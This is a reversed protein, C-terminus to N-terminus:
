KKDHDKKGTKERPNAAFFKTLGENVIDQFIAFKSAYQPYFRAYFSLLGNYSRLEAVNQPKGQRFVVEIKEPDPSIKGYSVRFGLSCLNDQLWRCKDMGLTMNYQVKRHLLYGIHFLQWFADKGKIHINDVFAAIGKWNAPGIVHSQVMQFHGPVQKPGMSCCEPVAIGLPTRLALLHRSKPEVECQYFGKNNDCDSIFEFDANTTWDLVRQMHNINLPTSTTYLNLLRYDGTPRPKRGPKHVVYIDSAFPTHPVLSYVKLRMLEELWKIIIENDKANYKRIPQNPPLGKSLQLEFPIETFRGIENGPFSFAKPFRRLILLLTYIVFKDRELNVAFDTELLKEFEPIRYASDNTTLGFVETLVQFQQMTLLKPDKSKCPLSKHTLVEVCQANTIESDHEAFFSYPIPIQTIAEVQEIMSIYAQSSETNEPQWDHKTEYPTIDILRAIGDVIKANFKLHDKPVEGKISGPIIYDPFHLSVAFPNSGDTMTCLAMKSITDNGIIIVPDPMNLVLFTPYVYIYQGQLGQFAIKNKIYSSAKDKGVGRINVQPLDRREKVPFLDELHKHKSIATLGSGPDIVAVVNYGKITVYTFFPTNKTLIETENENPPIDYQQFASEGAFEKVDDWKAQLAATITKFKEEKIPKSENMLYATAMNLNAPNQRPTPTTKTKGKLVDSLKVFKPQFLKNFMTHSNECGSLMWAATEKWPTKGVGVNANCTQPPLFLNTNDVTDLIIPDSVLLKWLAEDHKGVPAILLIRKTKSKCIHEIVKRIKSFPPNAYYLRDQNWLISFADFQHLDPHKRDNETFSCFKKVQRNDQTAFMDCKPAEWVFTLQRFVEPNLKYDEYDAIIGTSEPEARAVQTTPPLTKRDPPKKKRKQNEELLLMLRSEDVEDDLPVLSGNM